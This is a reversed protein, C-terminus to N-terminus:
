RDLRGVMQGETVRQDASSDVVSGLVSDVRPEAVTSTELAPAPALDAALPASHMEPLSLAGQTLCAQFFISFETARCPWSMAQSLLM